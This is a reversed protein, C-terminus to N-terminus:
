SSPLREALWAFVSHEYSARVAAVSLALDHLGGEFRRVTVDVGLQPARQWIHRVDLVCDAGALDAATPRAPHGSRASTCVLVPVQVDLGRAVRAHGRRVARLWAAYVPVDEIPKWTLDYEWEGGTSTHLSRGYPEGLTSVRLRPLLPGVADLVRTTIVRNVWSSNLDFWPSNLVLADIAGPHDSAYLSAILGGTSHGLLVVEQAGAARIEGLALGVEEDYVALDTVFNPTRGPRISRGYDRLDLAYFDYGAETWARAHDAQFFYDTFGHVYLVARRRSGAGREHVLTAEPAPLGTDPLLTLTRQVWDDGLIDPSSTSM